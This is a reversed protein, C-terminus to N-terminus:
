AYVCPFMVGTQACGKILENLAPIHIMEVNYYADDIIRKTNLVKGLLM